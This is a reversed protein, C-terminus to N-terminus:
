ATETRARIRKDFTITPTPIRITQVPWCLDDKYRNRGGKVCICTGLLQENRLKSIGLGVHVSGFSRKRQVQFPCTERQCSMRVISASGHANGEKSKGQGGVATVSLGIHELFRQRQLMKNSPWRPLNLMERPGRPMPQMKLVPYTLLTFQTPLPGCKM